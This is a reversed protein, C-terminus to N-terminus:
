ETPTSSPSLGLLYDTSCAFVEACRLLTDVSPDGRGRELNAIQARSIRLKESLELQTIASKERLAVLRAGFTAVLVGTGKCYPCTDM